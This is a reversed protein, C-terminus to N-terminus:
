NNQRQFDVGVPLGGKGFPKRLSIRSIAASFTVQPSSRMALSSFRFSPMQTEGASHPLVQTGPSRWACGMRLLTPQGEDAIMSLYDNGAVEEDHDGGGEACQVHEHHHFQTASSNKMVVDGRVWRRFPGSLLEPLCKRSTM